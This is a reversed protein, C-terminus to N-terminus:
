RLQFDAPVLGLKKLTAESAAMEEPTSSENLNRVLMQEIEARSQAGSRVQRLVPLKRLQSTERLVETTAERVAATKPNVAAPRARQRAAAGTVLLSAAAAGALAACLAPALLRKRLSIRKSM